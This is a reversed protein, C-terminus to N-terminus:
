APPGRSYHAVRISAVYLVPRAPKLIEVDDSIQLLGDCDVHLSRQALYQCVPCNDDDHLPAPTPASDRSSESEAGEHSCDCAHAHDEHADAHHGHVLPSSHVCGLGPHYHAVGLVLVEALYVASLFIAIHSQRKTIMDFLRPLYRDDIGIIRM